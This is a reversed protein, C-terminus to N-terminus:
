SRTEGRDKPLILYGIMALIMAVGLAGALGAHDVFIANLVAHASLFLALGFVLYSVGRRIMKAM